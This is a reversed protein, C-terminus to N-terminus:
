DLYAKLCDPVDGSHSLSISFTITHQEAIAKIKDLWKCIEEPTMIYINLIGDLYISEIDHNSAALGHLFGIFGNSSEIPFDSINIYRIGHNLELISEDSEGIFIINGKATKLATNAQQILDKTKGSGAQGIHLKIM